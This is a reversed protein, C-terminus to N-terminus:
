ASPYNHRAHNPPSVEPQPDHGYRRGKIRAAPEARIAWSDKESLKLGGTDAAMKPGKDDSNPSGGVYKKRPNRSMNTEVNLVIEISLEGNTRCVM